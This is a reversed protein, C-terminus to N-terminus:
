DERFFINSLINIFKYYIIGKKKIKYNDDILNDELMLNLRNQIFRKKLFENKSLEIVKVTPSDNFVATLFVVYSIIVIFNFLFFNLSFVGYIVVIITFCFIYSLITFFFWKKYLHFFKFIIIQIILTSVLIQITYWFM